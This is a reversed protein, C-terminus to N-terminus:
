CTPRNGTIVAQAPPSGSAAPVSAFTAPVSMTRWRDFPFAIAVASGVIADVPIFAVSGDGDPGQTLHCRSDQSNNRHDGMVFVHGAPVVVDFTYDSPKAQKGNTDKYLYSTEDLAYGNVEVRGQSDCCTVHDGPLGILRKVLHNTSEDPALGVFVLAKHVWNTDEHAAGLWGEVDRFVIIDGRQYGIVKQVLVRDRVLLTNEMSGSPIVFMQAVFVRLITSAVLTGVLVFAIDKLLDFPGYRKSARRAPTSTTEPKRTVRVM